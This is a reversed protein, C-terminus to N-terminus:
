SHSFYESILTQTSKFRCMTTGACLRFVACNENLMNNIYITIKSVRFDTLAESYCHVLVRRVILSTM